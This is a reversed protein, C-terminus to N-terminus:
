KPIYSALDDLDVEAVTVNGAAAAPILEYKKAFGIVSAGLDGDSVAAVVKVGASALERILLLAAQGEAGAHPPNCPTAHPHAHDCPPSRPRM